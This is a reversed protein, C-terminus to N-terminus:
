EARVTLTEAAPGRLVALEAESGFPVAALKQMADALDAPTEGNVGRLVDGARVGAAEAPSGPIVRDVLVTPGAATLSLGFSPKIDGRVSLRGVVAEARPADNKTQFAAM